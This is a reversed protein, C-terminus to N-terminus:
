VAAGCSLCFNADAELATGCAACFGAGDQSSFAGAIGEFEPGTPSGLPDPGYDNTGRTGPKLYWYLLLFIGIITFVILFWWGSRGIDHLRRVAVAIGPILIALSSITDLIASGGFLLADLVTAAISLLLSFLTWWWYESRSSRTRFDFYRRFGSSVAQPFTM